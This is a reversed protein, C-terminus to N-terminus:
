RVTCVKGEVNAPVRWFGSADAAVTMSKKEETYKLKQHPKLKWLLTTSNPAARQIEACGQTIPTLQLHGFSTIQTQWNAPCNQHQVGRVSIQIWCANPEWNTRALLRGNAEDYWWPDLNQYGVGPLYPDAWLLEYAVGPGERVMQRDEIAWGQLFQSSDSNPDLSVLALAAIHAMWDPHEVQDPKLNLLFQIPLSNFFQPANERLDNHDTAKTVALYEAAAYVEGANALDTALLVEILKKGDAQSDATHAFLSDRLAALQGTKSGPCAQSPRNSEGPSNDVWDRILAAQRQSCPHAKAWEVAEKGRAEDKTVAYYLALEFGREPSDPANKVREEFNLWRATQRDRDRKLRKLRQPTLLLKSPHESLQAFATVNLIATVLALFIGLRL